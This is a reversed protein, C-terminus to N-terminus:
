LGIEGVQLLPEAFLAASEDGPCSATGFGEHFGERPIAQLLFVEASMPHVLDIFIGSQGRDGGRRGEGLGLAVEALVIGFPEALGVEWAPSMKLPFKHWQVPLEVTEDGSRHLHITSGPFDKADHVFHSDRHVKVAFEVFQEALLIHDAQVIGIDPEPIDDVAGVGREDVLFETDEVVIEQQILKLVRGPDLPVVEEGQKLFTFGTPLFAEDHSIHLLTDVAPTARVPLQKGLIHLIAKRPSVWLCQFVVVPAKSVYDPEVVAEETIGGAAQVATQLTEIFPDLHRRYIRFFFAPLMDLRM